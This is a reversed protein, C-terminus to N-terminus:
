CIVNKGNKALGLHNEPWAKEPWFRNKAMGIKSSFELNV